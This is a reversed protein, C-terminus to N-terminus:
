EVGVTTLWVASLPEVASASGLGRVSRELALIRAGAGAVYTLLPDDRVDSVATRPLSDAVQVTGRRLLALRERASPAWGSSSRTSRPGSIPGPEGGRSTPRSWL